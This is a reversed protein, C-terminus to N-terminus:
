KYINPQISPEVSLRRPGGTTVAWIANAAHILAVCSTGSLRPKARWGGNSYDLQHVGQSHGLLVQPEGLWCAPGGVGEIALIRCNWLQRLDERPTLWAVRERSAWLLGQPSNLYLIRASASDPNEFFTNLAFLRWAVGKKGSQKLWYNGCLLEPLGDRDLEVFQLGAQRSPTYISYIERTGDPTWFRLQSHHHLYLLGNEGDLTTFLLDRTATEEELVIRPSHRILRTRNELLFLGANPDLAGAADYNTGSELIRPPGGDLPWLALSDGWTLIGDHHLAAGRVEGPHRQPTSLTAV